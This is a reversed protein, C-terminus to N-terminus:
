GSTFMVNGATPVNYCLGDYVDMGTGNTECQTGSVTLSFIKDGSSSPIACIGYTPLGPQECSAINASVAFSEFVIEPKSYSKKM